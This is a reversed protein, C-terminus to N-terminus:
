SATYRANASASDTGIIVQSSASAVAPTLGRLTGRLSTGHWSPGRFARDLNDILLAIRADASARASSRPM